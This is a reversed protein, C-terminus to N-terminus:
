SGFPLPNSNRRASWFNDKRKRNFNHYLEELARFADSYDQERSYIPARILFVILCVKLCSIVMLVASSLRTM